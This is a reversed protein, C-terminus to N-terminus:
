NFVKASNLVFRLATGTQGNSEITLTGGLKALRERMGILGWHGPVGNQAIEPPMGIGNDLVKGEIGQATVVLSARIEQAGSHRAANIVAEKLVQCLERAVKSRVREIGDSVTLKLRGNASPAITDLEKCLEAVIEEASQSDRLAMVEDRTDEVLKEAQDLVDELIREEQSGQPLRNHITSTRLILAHVGQLLNDHLTRAIREREELRAATREASRAAATAMRWRHFGVVMALLLALVLVRFWIAQWFEPLITFKFTAGEKNWVGDENAAIVQFTYNGPELNTYRAVREGAPEQWERDVGSLRYKIKVKEPVSLATVAYRIELSTTGAKLTGPATPQLQTSGARLGLVMVHPPLTNKRVNQPDIWAVQSNTAYYIRGDGAVTLSPLPRIQTANGRVGDALSLIEWKLRHNPSAWFQRLEDRDIRYLGDTGHAWLAGQQDLGLGAVGRFMSIQEPLMAKPGSADLWLMGSEGGAILKGDAEILSLITGINCAAANSRMRVAGDKVEAIRSGTFGLWVKGSAGVHLIVPTGDSGPAGTDVHSWNGQSFRYLGLRMLSVWVVGDHDVAISQVTQGLQLKEPLPWHQVGGRTIHYLGTESGAWVSGAHERWMAVVNRLNIPRADSAGRIPLLQTASVGSMLISDGLGRHVYPLFVAAPVPIDHVRQARLREVGNLTTFWTNGERDVLSGLVTSKGPRGAELSAIVGYRGNDQRALQVLGREGLWAFTADGPGEILGDVDTSLQDFVIVPKKGAELAALTGDSVVAHLKGRILGLNKWAGLNGLYPSFTSSGRPRVYLWQDVSVWFAGDGDMYARNVVGDPLGNNRLVEWSDGTLKALGQSTGVYFEGEPTQMLSRAVGAPLGDKVGFHRAREPTFISIGGFQYTLAIGHKLALVESINHSALRHGYITEVRRFKEGDFRYLGSPSAFWLLGDGTQAIEWAGAPAGDVPTWARREFTIDPLTVTAAAQMSIVLTLWFGLLQWVRM